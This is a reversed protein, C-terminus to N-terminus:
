LNSLVFDKYPSLYERQIDWSFKFYYKSYLYSIEPAPNPKERSRWVATGDYLFLSYSPFIALDNNKNIRYNMQISKKVNKGKSCLLFHVTEM